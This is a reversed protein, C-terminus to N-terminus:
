LNSKQTLDATIKKITKNDLNYKTMILAVLISGIAPYLTFSTLIGSKTAESLEVNAQYQYYALLWGAIAGGLALGLKIFFVVSAYVLGTLRQGNQWVGYDIADAMKAWLLPTAMQTFFCWLFYMLFALLVQENPVFFAFCSLIASIYQLYIYATKKDLRKSLPQACACGIINGVMGLTVFETILDEKGLVYKVYYIALTTRLVMSTLLILAAMCLIKFPQNQWLVHLQTKLSLKHPPNIVREKTYRFCILFLVVGLCSMVLMTLQYGLENNGEGFWKVLPLTCSTVLLGGLMGFVFRYSQISVRENPNSSLVGGLASYPINIATYVLMLLTYTVFAYIIKNGDDMAPTTFTIVSIVAFPIALWLLYPRYSGYKTHTADTLAGMIPDTVADIVRVVLFLTGVVAPSIGFIDTYFFTLFLMVTQFIINSATDGLGYAIKEKKSLM